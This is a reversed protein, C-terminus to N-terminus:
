KQQAIYQLAVVQTKVYDQPERCPKASVTKNTQKPNKKKGIYADHQM